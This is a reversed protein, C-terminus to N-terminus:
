CILFLLFLSRYYESSFRKIIKGFLGQCILRVASIIVTPLSVLHVDSYSSVGPTRNRPNQKPSITATM